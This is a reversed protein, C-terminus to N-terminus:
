LTSRATISSTRTTPTLTSQRRGSSATSRTTRDLGYRQQPNIWYSQEQGTAVDYRGFEGKCDGYVIKGSPIPWIQGSECGSAQGWSPRTTSGGRFPPLSDVVVTSNDQQPGYVRYPFQQDTDVM